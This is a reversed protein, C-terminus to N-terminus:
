RPLKPDNMKRITKHVEEVAEEDEDMDGSMELVEYARGEEEPRVSGCLNM